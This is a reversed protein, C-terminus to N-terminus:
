SLEEEIRTAPEAEVQAFSASATLLLVVSLLEFLTRRMENEGPNNTCFRM